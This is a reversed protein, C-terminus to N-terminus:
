APDPKQSQQKKQQRRQAPKFVKWFFERSVEFLSLTRQEAESGNISVRNRLTRILNQAATTNSFLKKGIDEYKLPSRGDICCYFGIFIEPDRDPMHKKATERLKDIAHKEAEKNLIEIV